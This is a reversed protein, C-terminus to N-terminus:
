PMALWNQVLTTFNPTGLGTVPDWGKAASFGATGCGPNSGNTIDHFANAFNASYIAPNIFGIPSKGASIRADNVLTLIAGIVPTSASTGAVNFGNGDIVVVFNAGNASLDPYARSDGASHWTGNPYMPANTKLYSSVADQQYTPLAFYNSFGGGSYVAAGNNNVVDLASEPDYVTKGAVVQTGGVSTVYGCTSPFTPNFVVSGAFRGDGSLCTGDVGAVGSDGSGFLVTVGMLGLKAYESCQRGAYFSSYWAENYGYSVSIVNTPKVTGCDKGAQYGGPNNDPYVHDYTPDDGGLYSCYSSDLADLFNDMNAGGNIDGVQYLTVTQNPGVLAMSYQVDLDSELNHASDQVATQLVGGDISVMKPTVNYLGPSLAKAFINLDSQLYAQPTFAVIGFSNQSTARPTYNNVSYLTQLCIPTISQNCIDILNPSADSVAAINPANVLRVAESTSVQESRKDLRADFNLTPTVFDVHAAVHAPLHYSECATHEVGTNHAYVYYEAHLLEEAEGVTSSVELWGRSPSSKIRAADVGSTLLWNRVTTITENSPAFSTAVQGPTWHKGYNPSQPHSVDYLFQEIQDINSQALAFKLPLVVSSDHKRKRAWDSPIADRKEHLVFPSLSADTVLIFVLSVLSISFPRM